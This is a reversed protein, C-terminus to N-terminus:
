RWGEPEIFRRLWGVTNGHDVFKGGAFDPHADIMIPALAQAIAICGNLSADPRHQDGPVPHAGALLLTAFQRQAVGVDQRNALMALASRIKPAAAFGSGVLTIWSPGKIGKKMMPLTGNLDEVGVGWYRRALAYISEFAGEKVWPDYTFVLGGHGSYLRVNDAIEVAMRKLISLDTELPLLIRVFGHLGSSRLHIRRCSFHWSGQPDDITRGDWFQLELARGARIRQRVPELWPRQIGKAAAARGSATLVPQALPVWYELEAIKYQRMREPPCYREYLSLLFELEQESPGAIYVTLDLMVRAAVRNNLHRPTVLEAPLPPMAM